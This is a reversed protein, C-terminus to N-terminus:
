NWTLIWLTPLKNELIEERVNRLVFGYRWVWCIHTDIRWSALSLWARVLPWWFDYHRVCQGRAWHVHCCRFPPFQRPHAAFSVSRSRVPYSPLAQLWHGLALFGIRPHTGFSKSWSSLLPLAPLNSKFVNPSATNSKIALPANVSPRDSGYGLANSGWLRTLKVLKIM